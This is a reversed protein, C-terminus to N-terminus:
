AWKGEGVENCSGLKKFEEEDGGKDPHHKLAAKRYCKRWTGGVPCFKKRCSAETVADARPMSAGGYIFEEVNEPDELDGYRFGHPANVMSNLKPIADVAKAEVERAARRAGVSTCSEDEKAIFDACAQKCATNKTSTFTFFSSDM